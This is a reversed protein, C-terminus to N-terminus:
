NLGPITRGSTVNDKFVRAISKQLIPIDGLSFCEGCVAAAADVAFLNQM